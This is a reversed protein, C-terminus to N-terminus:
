KVDNPSPLLEVSCICVLALHRFTLKGNNRVLVAASIDSVAAFESSPIEYTDGNNMRVRVPGQRILETLEHRDM